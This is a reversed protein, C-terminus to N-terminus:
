ATLPWEAGGKPCALRDLGHPVMRRPFCQFEFHMGDPILWHGGWTFGWKAFIAVLRKSQHPPSGFPNQSVNIDLAAGWAHAAIAPGTNGPIMRPAFCGGYDSAHISRSLRRRRVEALAAHLQPLLLRNCSVTHLIPEHETVIHSSQWGPQLRLWEGPLLHPSADFEGFAQKMLVPPLVADAQRLYRAEGPGRIRILTGNPLLSRIRGAVRQWRANASPQVLIYRDQTIGLSAAEAHSVLLEHYGVDPDPLVGAVHLRDTGIQM